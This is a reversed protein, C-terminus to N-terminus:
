ATRAHRYWERALGALAALGVVISLLGYLGVWHPLVFGIWSDASAVLGGPGGHSTGDLDDGAPVTEPEEEPDGAPGLRDVDYVIGREESLDHRWVVTGNADVELARFNRSDAILTNGNPLRDADRPWQLRDDAVPGEYQWVATMSDADYEVVRDNESDAVLLTDHRDLYNPDHQDHMLTHNGPEGYVAEVDDTEPDVEIVVDFNRISLLFNGNELRDVDNMHTWDQRPGQYADDERSTGAVHDTWFDSGEDLHETGNWQWTVNGSRDVTFTRHRAMDIIVTEGNPLRDADHVEHYSIFRDYWTYEWVVENTDPDVEQVRNLVCHDKATQRWEEPCGADPVKQGFSVMVNGDDLMEGDFVAADDPQYEWVREGEDNLIFVDGNHNGFWGYAQVTVLTRNDANGDVPDEATAALGGLAIVSLVLLVSLAAVRQRRM